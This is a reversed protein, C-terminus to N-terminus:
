PHSCTQTRHISALEPATEIRQSQRVVRINATLETLPLLFTDLTRCDEFLIIADIHLSRDISICRFLDSGDTFYTGPTLHLDFTELRGKRKARNKRIEM